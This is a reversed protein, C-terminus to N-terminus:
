FVHGIVLSSCLLSRRTFVGLHKGFGTQEECGTSSHVLRSLFLSIQSAEAQTSRFVRISGDDSASSLNSGNSSFMRDLCLNASGFSTKRLKEARFTWLLKIHGLLVIMLGLLLALAM